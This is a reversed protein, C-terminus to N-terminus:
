KQQVYNRFYDRLMEQDLKVGSLFQNYSLIAYKNIKHCYASQEQIYNNVNIIKDELYSDCNWIALYIKQQMTDYILTADLHTKCVKNYSETDISVGNIRILDNRGIHYYTNEIKKFCDNTKISCNKYFPLEVILENNNGLNISYFDDVIRYKTSAFNNDLLDNIFVPGSTENSGFYSIINKVNKNLDNKWELQIYSLTYLNLNKHGKNRYLFQEILHTYPLMLHDLSNYDGDRVETISYNTMSKVNSCTIAPLFYTAFSSGHQLNISVGVNGYYFKQNRQLLHFIFKHTHKVIKPTGTTGSSTCILFNSEPTAYTTNNPTFDFKINEWNTKNHYVKINENKTYIVHKSIKKLLAIKETNYETDIFFYDIPMLLKTKPDIYEKDKFSDIRSYDVITIVLGLESAAFILSTQHLSAKCGILITQGVQCYFHNQLLNKYADIHASLFDFNYTAGFKNNTFDVYQIAPNILNRTVIM